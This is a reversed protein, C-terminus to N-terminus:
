VEKRREERERESGAARHRGLRRDHVHVVPGVVDALVGERGERRLSPDADVVVGVFRALDDLRLEEGAPGAVVHHHVPALVGRPEDRESDELREVLAAERVPLLEVRLHQLDELVVIWAVHERCRVHPTSRTLSRM